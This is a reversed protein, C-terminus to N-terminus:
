DLREKKQRSKRISRKITRYLIIILILTIIIIIYLSINSKQILGLELAKEQTYVTIPVNITKTIEKNDFDKYEITASLFPNQTKYIVDFTATEFDDSDITGIYVDKDSLLTFGQPNLKITLFRAEAFGKNIIKLTLKDQQDIVPKETEVSFVLDANANVTLGITGSNTKQQNAITYSITYPIKYDGPKIDNAAKIIFNFKEEDNEAIEDVSDESNGIPTFPLNTFDLKFSVSAADDNLNNEIVLKITNEEGPSLTEISVSKLNLASALSTLVIILFTIALITKTQKIM